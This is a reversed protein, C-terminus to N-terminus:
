SFLYTVSKWERYILGTMLFDTKPIETRTLILCPLSTISGQEHEGCSLIFNLSSKSILIVLILSLKLNLDGFGTM